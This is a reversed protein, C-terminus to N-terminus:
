NKVFRVTKQNDATNIVAHYIGNQLNAVSFSHENTSFMLKGDVSYIAISAPKDLNFQIFDTTPNPGFRLPEQKAAQTASLVDGGQLIVDDILLVFGNNTINKFAIFIDENAYGKTHLDFSHTQWVSNEFVFYRLTDTFSTILSDTNSILVVYGDPFSADVSRSSWILRSFNDVSLRPTILFDSAQGVPEYYSTSAACTDTDTQYHIWASTFESVTSNPTLGDNDVTTWTEPLGDTFYEEFLTDQGFIQVTFSGIFLLTLLYRM